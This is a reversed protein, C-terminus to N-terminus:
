KKLIDILATLARKDSSQGLWFIAEKRIRPNPHTKAISIVEDIGSDDPTQTLAFLARKQIDFDGDTAAIDGLARIVRRSAKEGLWFMAKGRVEADKGSRALSILADISRSSDMQSIAFVSHERVRESPDSGATTLLLRLAEDTDSEGLWFAASERLTPQDSTRLVGGLFRVMADTPPHLGVASLLSKRVELDKEGEFQNELLDLSESDIATGLWILPEGHLDVHLSLNSVKVRQILPKGPADDLVEFLIGVEKPVKREISRDADSSTVTGNSQCDYSGIGITRERLCPGLGILECLTPRNRREDSSFTGTFSNEGMLRVISYGIWSRGSHPHAALQRIAWTWREALRGDRDPCVMVPQATTLSPAAASLFSLIAVFGALRPM